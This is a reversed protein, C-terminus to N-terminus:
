GFYPRVAREDRVRAALTEVDEGLVPHLLGPAVDRLPELVFGREHLRPHPVVLDPEDIRTDDYFLLDLDLERPADRLERRARGAQREIALLRELLARPALTTTLVAVANLYPGQGPPGGV